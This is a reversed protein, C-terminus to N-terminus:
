GSVHVFLSWNWIYVFVLNEADVKFILSEFLSVKSNNMITEDIPAPGLIACERSSLSSSDGSVTKDQLAAMSGTM